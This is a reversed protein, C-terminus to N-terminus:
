CAPQRVVRLRGSSSRTDSTVTWQRVLRVNHCSSLLGKRNGETRMRQVATRQRRMEAEQEALTEELRGPIHAMGDGSDAGASATSTTFADRIDGLAIGADTMKRIWLLRIM